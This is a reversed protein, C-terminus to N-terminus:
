KPQAMSFITRWDKKMDVVLWNNKPALDLATNLKGIASKRDYAVERVGDTHHIIWALRPGSASTTWLLM